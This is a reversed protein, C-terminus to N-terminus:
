RIYVIVVTQIVTVSSLHLLSCKMHIGYIWKLLVFTCMVKHPINISLSQIPNVTVSKSTIQGFFFFIYIYIVVDNHYLFSFLFIPVFTFVFFLFPLCLCLKAKAQLVTHAIVSFQNIM